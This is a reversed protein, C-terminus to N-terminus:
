FSIEALRLLVTGSEHIVTLTTTQIVSITVFVEIKLTDKMIGKEEQIQSSRYMERSKFDNIQYFLFM